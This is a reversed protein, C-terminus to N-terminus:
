AQWCAQIQRPTLSGISMRAQEFDSANRIDGYFIAVGLQKLVARNTKSGLRMLNDIGCLSLGEIRELLGRALTSGAFGCIGTILIRM